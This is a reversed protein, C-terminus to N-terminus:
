VLIRPLSQRRDNVLRSVNPLDPISARGLIASCQKVIPHEVNEDDDLPDRLFTARVELRCDDRQAGCRM